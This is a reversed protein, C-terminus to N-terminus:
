CARPQDEDDPLWARLDALDAPAPAPRRSPTPLGLRPLWRPQGPEPEPPVVPEPLAALISATPHFNPPPALPEESASPPAPLAASDPAALPASTAAAVGLSGMAEELCDRM